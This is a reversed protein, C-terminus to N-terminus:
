YWFAVFVSPKIHDSGRPGNLGGMKSANQASKHVETHEGSGVVLIIFIWVFHILFPHILHNQSGVASNLGGIKSVHQKNKVAGSGGYCNLGCKNCM